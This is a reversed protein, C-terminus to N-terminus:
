FQLKLAFQMSRPGGMQYLSSVTGLSQSLTKTAQGFTKDTLTADILGFNPHNLVNFAEARFQLAVNERLRFERRAAFNVQTACFGRVFNRPANGDQNGTPTAFAAPNVQRGGPIGPLHLYIPQNPVLDVGGTYLSGTSPDTITNGQLTVPFATHALFHGDIAWDNALTKLVRNGRNNPLQWTAGISASNRVDFDSNGRVPILTVYNSGYDLSHSWTYSALAQVGYAVSRQFKLQLAQYDSTTKNDFEYITGFNPNLSKISFEDETVLRRGNSGIYTISLTQARGLAQELAASWELTYPLQLHPYPYYVLSSTYPPLASPAFNIGGPFPAAAGAVSKTALFGVGYYGYNGAPVDTDFFVGGGARLVTQYDPNDNAVWAVGLRPAINYWTTKYLQTGKPALSLSAPNGINGSLTYPTNGDAAGPPPDVEWRLGASLSLRSTIRWEDQAFASFETTVPKGPLTVEAEGSLAKNALIQTESEYLYLALPSAASASSRVQRYDIGFKFSHKGRFWSLTDTLNWQRQQNSEVYPELLSSGTGPVLFFFLGSGTSPTGPGLLAQPINVPQAGGYNDIVDHLNRASTSFGLRLEDDINPRIQTTVGLTYTRATLNTPEYESLNRAASFSPANSFRFFLKVKSSLSHDLRISSSDIQSPLADAQIFQALGNGYDTRGPTPLPFANLLSSMVSPLSPNQRLSLSPVYELTAAQPQDLRLGEYSFFFFTRGKGSYLGLIGIPGGLTGGFDNQRLQPQAAKYYDSFWDNADFYNNRLYDFVSGHFDNTGSRTVFSIQAGPNRGYEASYTSSNIRFEQLADISVLSQTTGLSTASPVAGGGGAGSTSGSIGAGTNASIGDVMYYNSETRQGNVSFDGNNGITVSTQPSGTVVGPTLLILDQFSRGNLPINEVFRRDIVTGVSSDTTNITPGSGDVTVVQAATGVKLTLQLHREDGVNLVINGVSVDAFRDKSIKLSYRGPNLFSFTVTGTSGTTGHQEQTTDVNLISVDAATIRAGSTDSIDVSLTASSAQAHCLGSPHLFLIIAFMWPICRRVLVEFKPM